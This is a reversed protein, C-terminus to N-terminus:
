DRQRSRAMLAGLTANVDRLAARVEEQHDGQMEGLSDM